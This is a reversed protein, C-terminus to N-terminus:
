LGKNGMIWDLNNQACCFVKMRLLKEPSLIFKSEVKSFFNQSLKTIKNKQMVIDGKGVKTMHALRAWKLKLFSLSLARYLNLYPENARLTLDEDSTRNM